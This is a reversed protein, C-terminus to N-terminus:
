ASVKNNTENIDEEILNDLFEYRNKFRRADHITKVLEDADMYEDDGWIGAFDCADLKRKTVKKVPESDAVKVSKILLLGLEYRQANDYDRVLSKYLTKVPVPKKGKVVNEM